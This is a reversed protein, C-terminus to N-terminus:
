LSPIFKLAPFWTGLLTQPWAVTLLRHFVVYIFLTLGIAHALALKWPERNELRMYAIVFLPVTPILGIVAMSGMFALFWGFFVGARLIVTRRPIHATDSALDMHIRSKVEAGASGATGPAKAATARRFVANALSLLAFALALSGVIQPVIRAAINWERSEILMYSLVVIVAAPFLQSLRFRPAGFNTLMNYVGGQAKVDQWLPRLLGFLALAFLAMVLPRTLWEAGYREVSIFLYREFIDGLVFGLLLPPRPWKLQKMVWGLVGFALLAYLDGWDRAVEFAGIYVIGLVTPLILTYRLTAILAFKASFLYCLGAGVINALAISWVMSYTVSLNKTLMDPGPVLGHVLFAGLLVAMGASGPVGFAV